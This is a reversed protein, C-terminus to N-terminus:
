FKRLLHCRGTLAGREDAQDDPARFLEVRLVRDILKGPEGVGGSRRDHELHNLFPRCGIGGREDAAAFEVLKRGFAGADAGVDDDEVVLQRRRLEPVDFLPDPPLDDIARLQNQIDERPARSCAFPLPLDLQRLQFVQERAQDARSGRQRAQAAADAGASRAFRFEFGVAPTNALSDM